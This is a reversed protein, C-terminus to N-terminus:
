FSAHSRHLQPNNEDIKPSSAPTMASWGALSLLHSYGLGLRSKQPQFQCRDTGPLWARRCGPRTCPLARPGRGRCPCLRSAPHAAMKIATGKLDRWNGPPFFEPAPPLFVFCSKRFSRGPSLALRLCSSIPFLLM